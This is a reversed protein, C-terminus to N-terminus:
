CIAYSCFVRFFLDHAATGHAGIHFLDHEFVNQFAELGGRGSCIMSNGSFTIIFALFASSLIISSVSALCDSGFGFM